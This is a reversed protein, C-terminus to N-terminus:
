STYAESVATVGILLALTLYQISLLEVRGGNVRKLMLPPVVSKSRLFLPPVVSTIICLNPTFDANKTLNM